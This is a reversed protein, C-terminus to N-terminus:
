ERYKFEGFVEQIYKISSMVREKANSKLDDLLEPHNNYYKLKKIFHAVGFGKYFEDETPLRHYTNHFEKCIALKTENDMKVKQRETGLKVNLVKEAFLRQPHALQLSKLKNLFDGVPVTIDGLKGGNFVEDVEPLRSKQIQFRTLSIMYENFKPIMKYEKDIHFVNKVICKISETWKGELVQKVFEGINFMKGKNFADNMKENEDPLRCNDKFFKKCLDIMHGMSSVQNVSILLSPHPPVQQRPIEIQPIPHNSIPIPTHDFEEYQHPIDIFDTDSVQFDEIMLDQLEM